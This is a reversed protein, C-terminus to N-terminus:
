RTDILTTSHIDTQVEFIVERDDQSFSVSIADNELFGITSVSVANEGAPLKLRVNFSQPGNGVARYARLQIRGKDAYPILITFPDANTQLPTDGGAKTWVRQEFKGRLREAKARSDPRDDGPAAANYYAFGYLKASRFISAAPADVLANGERREGDEDYEGTDGTAIVMGGGSVFTKIAEAETDSLCAINPLILTDIGSLSDMDATTVVRFPIHLQLLMMSTGLFEGACRWPEMRKRFDHFVISYRSYYLGVNAYIEIGKGYYIKENAAIWAFLETRAEGDVSGSMDPEDTEWFNCGATLQLTALRRMNGADGEDTYSLIWSPDSGDLARYTLYRVIDELWSYGHYGSSSGDVNTWEHCRADSNRAISAPDCATEAADTIGNWHEIILKTKKNGKRVAQRAEAIFNEIQEFRFRVFRRFNADSWDAEQPPQAGYQTEYIVACDRCACAWGWGRREDFWGRLFPVDIYIGDVGTAALRRLEDKWVTKYDPDNPCLWVDEDKPGVWFAGADAGYLLAPEGDLGRQAWEPHESFTSKKGSDVVGDRNMDVNESVSELPAQYVFFRMRPHASRAYGLVRGVMGVQDAIPEYSFDLDVTNVGQAALEDIRHRLESDSMGVWMDTAAIRARRLWRANGAM